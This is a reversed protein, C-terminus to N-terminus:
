EPGICLRQTKNAKTQRHQRKEIRKRYNRRGRAENWSHSTIRTTNKWTFFWVLASETLCREIPLVFHLSVHEDVFGKLFVLTGKPSSSFALNAELFDQIFPEM